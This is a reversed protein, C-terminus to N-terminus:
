RVRAWRYTDWATNGVAIAVEAEDATLGKVRREPDPAPWPCYRQARRRACEACTDDNGSIM